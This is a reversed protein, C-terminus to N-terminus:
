IRLEKESPSVTLQAFPRGTMNYEREFAETTSEVENELEFCILNSYDM